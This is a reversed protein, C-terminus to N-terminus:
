NRIKSRRKKRRRAEGKQQIRFMYQKSLSLLRDFGIFFNLMFQYIYLFYFLDNFLFMDLNIFNIGTLVIYM